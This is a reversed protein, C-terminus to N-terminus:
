PTFPAGSQFAHCHCQKNANVHVSDVILLERSFNSAAGRDNSTESNSSVEIQMVSVSHEGQEGQQKTEDNFTLLGLRIM